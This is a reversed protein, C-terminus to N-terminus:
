SGGKVVGEYVLRESGSVSVTTNGEFIKMAGRVEGVYSIGPNVLRITDWSLDSAGELIVGSVCRLVPIFSEDLRRTVLIEGGEKRLIMAAEELSEAKVVRGRSIGGFGKAGRALVNGVIFVRVTNTMMPSHLPLGAVIVLKDLMGALGAGIAAEIAGHIMLESDEALETMVPVVGWSLLLQRYTAPESTAAVIPQAPRYAALSRATNGSLTPALIARAAIGRAVLLAAKAVSHAIDGAQGSAADLGQEMKRRYEPSAEVDAAIRSMTSVAEVPYRGNATEGSLMVADAGDLVANAVDTLEARTPRPNHIMSDLMQTAVIVPKGARNCKEIIRKQVLPIREGGLQVGLDGRAVMIGYSVRLIEDVNELGEEDEIKAIVKAKGGHAEILRQIATVDTPKRVFSAAIFDMERECAFRIDAEDKETMAPLKVRIGPVNVNKRGGIEGGSAVVCSLSRADKGVVELEVLGDAILIRTGISADGILDAYSVSIRGPACPSGDAVLTWAEGAKLALSGDGEVPGTRIEPGKTDLMLALPIGTEASAARAKDIMAGHTEHDGHSFNFRAVNMGAKLLSAIMGPARTAPGMTAIIKTKRAESM